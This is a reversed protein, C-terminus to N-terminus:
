EDIDDFGVLAVQEPVRIGLRDLEDLAGLAMADNAAVIADLALKRETVFLRVAEKGSEPQFDGDAVLAPDFPIGCEALADRYARFRQEAEANAAPGRVFAIRQMGHLRALHRVGLAVGVENDVCVSSMGDLEVAISCMPMPRFRACYEGLRAAG